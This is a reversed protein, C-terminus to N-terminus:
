VCKLLYYKQLVGHLERCSCVNKYYYCQGTNPNLCSYLIRHQFLHCSTHVNIEPPVIADHASDLGNGEYIGWYSFQKKINIKMNNKMEIFYCDQLNHELLHSGFFTFCSRKLFCLCFYFEFSQILFGWRNSDFSLMAVSWCEKIGEFNLTCHKIPDADWCCCCCWWWFLVHVEITSKM